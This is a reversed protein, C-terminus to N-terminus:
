EKATFSYVGYCLIARGLTLLFYSERNFVTTPFGVIDRTMLLMRGPYQMLMAGLFYDVISVNLGDKKYRRVLSKMHTGCDRGLLLPADVITDILKQKETYKSENQMGRLFEIVVPEITVLTGGHDKLRNVLEVVEPHNIADIFFNTDLLIYRDKLVSHFDPPTVIAMSGYGSRKKM